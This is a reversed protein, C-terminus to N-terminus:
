KVDALSMFIILQDQIHEDVCCGVNLYHLMKSSAEKVIDKIDWLQKDYISSSGLYCNTSTQVVILVGGIMEKGTYGKDLLEEKYEIEGKETLKSVFLREM